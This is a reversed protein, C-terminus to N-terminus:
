ALGSFIGGGESVLDFICEHGRFSEISIYLGIGEKFTSKRPQVVVLCPFHRTPAYLVFVKTSLWQLEPYCKRTTKKNIFQM